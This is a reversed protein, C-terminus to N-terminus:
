GGRLTRTLREVIHRLEPDTDRATGIKECAHMVTTHDRGGFRNGIESLSLSTLDRSLYMAIQRPFALSNTRKRVKMAEEPIGFHDAVVKQIHEVTVIKDRSQLFDKLVTRALEITLDSDTLSSFALLRILSGELERINSRVNSAIFELVADPIELGDDQAKKRLIAIRTELDPAQIDTVLGWEFRSVLREE